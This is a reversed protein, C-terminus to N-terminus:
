KSRINLLYGRRCTAKMEEMRSEPYKRIRWIGDDGSSNGDASFCKKNQKQDRDVM